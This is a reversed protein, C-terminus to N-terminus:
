CKRAFSICGLPVELVADRLLGDGNGGRGELICGRSSWGSGVDLVAGMREPPVM